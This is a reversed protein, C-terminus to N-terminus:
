EDSLLVIDLPFAWIRSCCPLDQFIRTPIPADRVNHLVNATVIAALHPQLGNEIKFEDEM